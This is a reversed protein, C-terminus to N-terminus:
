AQRSLRLYAGQAVTISTGGTRIAEITVSGAATVVIYGSFLAVSATDTLSGNSVTSGFATVTAGQSSRVRGIEVNMASVTPAGSSKLTLSLTSTGVVTYPIFAAIVYTGPPVNPISLNTIDSTSTGISVTGTTSSQYESDTFKQATNSNFTYPSFNTGFDTAADNQGWYNIGASTGEIVFANLAENGSGFKRVSNDAIYNDVNSSNNSIVIAGKSLNTTRSAGVVLNGTVNCDATGGSLWIGQLGVTYIKNGTLSVRSSSDVQIGTGSSANGTIANDAIVTDTTASTQIGHASSGNGSQTIVNGTITNQSSTDLNIGPKNASTIVTNNAITARTWHFSQIGVQIPSNATNGIVKIDTYDSSPATHSGTFKGFGGLGSGDVAPGMYCGEIVGNICPTSDGGCDIQVAESFQRSLATTADRFGEFRCNAVVFGDVSNFDLAHWSCVNRFTVDRVEWNRCNSITFINYAADAAASQAKADWIGGLIKVNDIGATYGTGSATNAMTNTFTGSFIYAGYCYYTVNAKITLTSNLKYKAPPFVVVAGGNSSAYTGAAAICANVASSDDTTGDGKAGFAKVDFVGGNPLQPGVQYGAM